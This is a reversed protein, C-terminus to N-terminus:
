KLKGLSAFLTSGNYPEGKEDDEDEKTRAKKTARTNKTAGTKKTAETKKTTKAKEAKETTKAKETTETMRSAIDRARDVDVEVWRLCERTMPDSCTNCYVGGSM